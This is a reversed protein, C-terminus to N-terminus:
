PSCVRFTVYLADLTWIWFWQASFHVQVACMIADHARSVCAQLIVLDQDLSALDITDDVDVSNSQSAWDLVQAKVTQRLLLSDSNVKLLFSGQVNLLLGFILLGSAGTLGVLVFAANRGSLRTSWDSYQPAFVM